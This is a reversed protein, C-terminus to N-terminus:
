QTNAHETMDSEKHDGYVTGRWAGRDMSNGLCSNQFPNGNGVSFSRGPGPISCSDGIINKLNWVFIMRCNKDEKTQSGESLSNGELDMWIAVSPLTESKKIASYYEM